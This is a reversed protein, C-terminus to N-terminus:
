TDDKQENKQHSTKGDRASLKQHFFTKSVALVRKSDLMGMRNQSLIGMVPCHTYQETTRMKRFPLAVDRKHLQASGAASSRESLHYILNLKALSNCLKIELKVLDLLSQLLIGKKNAQVRRTCIIVVTNPLQKFALIHGIPSRCVIALADTHVSRMRCRM